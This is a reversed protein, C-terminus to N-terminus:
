RVVTILHLVDLYVIESRTNIKSVGRTAASITLPSMISVAIKRTGKSQEVKKHPQQNTPQNQYRAEACGRLGRCVLVAGVLTCLKLIAGWDGRTTGKSQCCLRKGWDYQLLVATM